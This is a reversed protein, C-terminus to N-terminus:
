SVLLHMGALFAQEGSLKRCTRDFQQLAREYRELLENSGILTIPESDERERLADVVESGILAGSLFSHASQPHLHDLLANARIGFMLNLLSPNAKAAQVGAAFGDADFEMSSMVSAITSHESLVAFLEGTMYSKLGVIAGNKAGCWKSHTGPLCFLGNQEGFEALAGFLQTEEGRMVDRDHLKHGCGVGGLIKVDYGTSTEVALFSQKMDAVSVPCPLYPTEQWGNRSGISGGMRVPLVGYQEFWAKCAEVLTQEYDSIKFAGADNVVSGLLAGDDCVLYARFSSSGWDVAIYSPLSSM